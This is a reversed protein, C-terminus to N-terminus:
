IRAVMRGRLSGGFSRTRGSSRLSSKCLSAMGVYHSSVCSAAGLFAWEAEVPMEDM